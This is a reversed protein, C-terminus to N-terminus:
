TMYHCIKHMYFALHEALAIMFPDNKDELFEYMSKSTENVKELVYQVEVTTDNEEVDNNDELRKSLSLDSIKKINAKM